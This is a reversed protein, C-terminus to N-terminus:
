ILKMIEGVRDLVELYVGKLKTVQDSYYKIDQRLRPIEDVANLLDQLDKYSILVKLDSPDM